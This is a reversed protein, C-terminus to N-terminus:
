IGSKLLSRSRSIKYTTVCIENGDMPIRIAGFQDPAVVGLFDGWLERM